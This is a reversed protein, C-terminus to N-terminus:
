SFSANLVSVPETEIGVISDMWPIIGLFSQSVILSSQAWCSM